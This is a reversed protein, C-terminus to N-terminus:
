YVYKGKRWLLTAAILRFAVFLSALMILDFSWDSWKVGEKELLNQRLFDGQSGNGSDIREKIYDFEAHNLLNIAYRLPCVYKVWRLSSPIKEVPLFLGSFLMQPILALPALQIAKQASAVGCGIVLAISSSTVGLSWTVFVETMFDGQLGMIFYAVLFTLLQCVLVVPMEILTKSVFYPAVSYQKAAYERLFVPREQPFSLLIPQASGMMAMISLSVLTGYHAEFDSVCSEFDFNGPHCNPASSHKSDGNSASGAFLWAYLSGLFLTMGFRAGLSGKNRLTGRLERQTLVVLQRWFGVGRRDGARMSSGRASGSASQRIREIDAVLEGRLNSERWAEKVRAVAEPPEKQLLFMVHDAPNFSMKCPYGLQGYYGAVKPVPGHYTIQGEHLFVADDFMDFIESSPQHVTCLVPVGSSVLGKLAEMLTYAAYSDLGSLPEDLFLMQPNTILEVGVSTRKREGGSIGKVLASGVITDACKTLNLTSLLRNVFAQREGRVPRGPLRMYASFELCERPTETAMLSDDQMVYAINSRFTNPDILTGSAYVQGELVMGRADTRQRGALVNLLTSKGSGSPGLVGTLRGPQMLGTIDQLIQKDGIRFSLGEWELTLSEQQQQGGRNLNASDARLQGFPTGFPTGSGGEELPPEAAAQLPLSLDKPVVGHSM